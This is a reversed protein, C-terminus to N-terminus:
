VLVWYYCLVWNRRFKLGILVDYRPSGALTLATIRYVIVPGFSAALIPLLVAQGWSTPMRAMSIYKGACYTSWTLTNKIYKKVHFISLNKYMHMQTLTLDTINNHKIFIVLPKAVIRKPSGIRLIFYDLVVILVM